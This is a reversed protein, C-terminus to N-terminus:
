AARAISIRSMAPAFKLNALVRVTGKKPEPMTCRGGSHSLRTLFERFICITNKTCLPLTVTLTPVGVTLNLIPTPPCHCTGLPSNNLQHIRPSLPNPHSALSEHQPLLSNRCYRSHTRSPPHSSRKRAPTRTPQPTPPHSPRHTTTEKNIDRTQIAWMKAIGPSATPHYLVERTRM